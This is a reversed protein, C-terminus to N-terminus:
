ALGDITLTVRDGAFWTMGYEIPKGDADANLSTTYVLPAGEDVHLHLAQTATAARASIRTSVRTYDDVGCRKLAETVGTEETLAAVIGPLRAGPFHSSFLAIPNGDALSLGHYIVLPSKPPIDLRAAEKPTAPREEIQLVQKEPTQGGALINQHFRVRKGIPYETPSATVYAGAGRRTRVLKEDVMAKIAHRVTHRNVGFRDALEAETPLKDGPVYIKDAIEATLARAIAQWIPTKRLKTM